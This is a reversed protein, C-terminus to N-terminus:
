DDFRTFELGPRYIEIMLNPEDGALEGWSLIERRGGGQSHRLIEYNVGASALEPMSLTFSPFPKGVTVWEPRPAPEIAAVVPGARFLQLTGGALMALAGVYALLRPFTHRFDAYLLAYIAARKAKTESPQLRHAFAAIPALFSQGLQLLRAFGPEAPAPDPAVSAPAPPRPRMGFNRSPPPTLPPMRPAAVDTIAM